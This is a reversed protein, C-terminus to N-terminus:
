LTLHIEITPKFINRGKCLVYNQKSASLMGIDKEGQGSVIWCTLLCNLTLNCSKNGELLRRSVHYGGPSTGWLGPMQDSNRMPNKEASPTHNM